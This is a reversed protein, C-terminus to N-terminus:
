DAFILIESSIDPYFTGSGLEVNFSYCFRSSALSFIFVKFAWPAKLTSSIRWFISFPFSTAKFSNDKNYSFFLSNVSSFSLRLYFNFMKLSFNISIFFRCWVSISAIFCTIRCRYSSWSKAICLLISCFSVIRLCISLSPAFFFSFTAGAVWVKACVTILSFKTLSLLLLLLFLMFSPDVLGLLSKALRSRYSVSPSFTVLEVSTRRFERIFCIFSFSFISLESSFFPSGLM